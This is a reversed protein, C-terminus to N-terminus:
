TAGAAKAAAVIAQISGPYTWSAISCGNALLFRREGGLSIGERVHDELFERTNRAVIQHDIGGMVCAGIKQKVDALIPGHPGRDWWNFIHAPFDLFDDFFLNEGHVHLTNMRGLNAIAEFVNVAYPKVFTLLEERTVLERDAIVSMFIGASGLRLSKKCYAILNDTVIELAAMLAEPENMMLDKMHEGALNRRISQWPDFVTDIFYAKGDLHNSIIELAKFQERWLSNEVNFRTICKLDEKSKVAKLGKPPQYFYDNMVKLFDFDYYDFYELTLRAFQEGSSHQVGFHYWLSVPPRNVKMGQLVHDVRELKNM